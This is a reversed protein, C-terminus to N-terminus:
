TKPPDSYTLFKALMWFVKQSFFPPFLKPFLFFFTPNIRTEFCCTKEKLSYPFSQVLQQLVNGQFEPFDPLVKVKGKIHQKKKDKM